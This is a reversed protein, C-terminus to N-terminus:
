RDAVQHPEPVGLGTLQELVGAGGVQQGAVPDDLRHRGVAAVAERESRTLLMWSAAARSISTASRRAGVSPAPRSTQTSPGAPEPLVVSAAATAASRGPVRTTWM